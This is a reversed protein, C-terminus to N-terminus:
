AEESATQNDDYAQKPYSRKLTQVRAKKVAKATGRASSKLLNKRSQMKSKGRRM